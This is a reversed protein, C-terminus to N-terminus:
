RKAQPYKNRRAAMERDKKRSWIIVPVYMLSIIILSYILEM